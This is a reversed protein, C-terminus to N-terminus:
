PLRRTILCKAAHTSKVHYINFNDDQVTVVGSTINVHIFWTKYSYSIM